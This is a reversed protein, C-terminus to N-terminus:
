MYNEITFQTDSYIDTVLNNYSAEKVHILKFELM